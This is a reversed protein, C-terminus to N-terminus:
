AARDASRTSVDENPSEALRYEVSNGRKGCVEFCGMRRFCYAAKQALWRPMAAGTALDATTFVNPVDANLCQWLEEATTVSFTAEVSALSRDEVSYKRRRSPKKPPIRTEEQATLLIDLQLNPHPFASTFHVLEQFIWPLNQKQPSLRSRVVKGRRRAKTLLRKRLALPKVVVVKHCETLTRIKDRIAMLSACQIEILRGDDDVADIRFNDVDVEHRSIDPVYHLKLQNHLSNAM